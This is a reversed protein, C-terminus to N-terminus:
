TATSSSCRCATPSRPSPMGRRRPLLPWSLACTRRRDVYPLLEDLVGPAERLDWQHVREAGPAVLDALAVDVKAALAGIARVAAPSLYGSLTEGELFELLRAQMTVGDVVVPWRRRATPSAHPAPRGCVAATIAAAAASQAELEPATVSPNAIKLLVRPGDTPEILFNRDQHSGLARARGASAGGTSRSRRQRRRTSRPPLPSCSHPEPADGRPITM